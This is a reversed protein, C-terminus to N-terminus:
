CKLDRTITIRVPQYFYAMPSIDDSGPRVVAPDLEIGSILGGLMYYEPYAGGGMGNTRTAAIKGLQQEVDDLFLYAADTPHEQGNAKSFGQILLTWEDKSVTRDETGAINFGSRPSELISIFPLATEEGFTARGRHVGKCDTMFGNALTIEQLITTLREQIQLKLRGSSM